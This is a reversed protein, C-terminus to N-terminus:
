SGWGANWKPRWKGASILKRLGRLWKFYPQDKPEYPNAKGRVKLHWVRKTTAAAKLYTIKTIVTGDSKIEKHRFSLAKRGQQAPDRRSYKAYIWKSSKNPHSRKLFRWVADFIQRDVHHYCKLPVGHRHYNAWGRIKPNLQSIVTGLNHGRCNKITGRVKDLFTKVNKKSPTIWLKGHSYKRLNQGLFDFGEHIHRIHTKEESLTLGRVRLWDNIAPLITNELDSRHRATVIFDDAYRIFNIQRGSKVATKVVKELGDLVMNCLCPSAIGGQPTGATTPFLRGKTEEYGSKLWQQLITEDMPINQLMWDHCINDFCGAIDADLVWTASNKRGLVTFAQDIADHTSRHKRFGYSNADASTESIPDLAMLHLAQMARDRIVPIGLPRTKKSGPKAINVRRLPLAKYGKKWLSLAGAMKSAPTKWHQGDIGPTRAGRSSTVREVALIRASLSRTLLEQLVKVKNSQGKSFAKVIRAQLRAVNRRAQDFDFKEWHKKLSSRAGALQEDNGLLALLNSKDLRTSYSM